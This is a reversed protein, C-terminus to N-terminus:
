EHAPHHAAVLGAAAAALLSLPLSVARDPNQRHARTLATNALDGDGLLQLALHFVPEAAERFNLVQKPLDPLDIPLQQFFPLPPLLKKKKAEKDKMFISSLSTAGKGSRNTRDKAGRRWAKWGQKVWGLKREKQPSTQAQIKHEPRRERVRMM